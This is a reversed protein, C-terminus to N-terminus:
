GPPAIAHSSLRHRVTAVRLGNGGQNLWVLHVAVQVDVGVDERQFLLVKKGVGPVVRAVVALNGLGAVVQGHGDGPARQDHHAVGVVAHADHHVAAGVLARAQDALSAAVGALEETAGVVGPGVLGIARQQGDRHFVAIHARIKRGAFARLAQHGDLVHADVTAKNEHLDMVHPLAKLVVKALREAGYVVHGVARGFALQLDSAAAKAVYVVAVPLEEDLVEVVGHVGHHGVLGRGTGGLAHPLVLRCVRGLGHGNLLEHREHRVVGEKVVHTHAHEVVAM